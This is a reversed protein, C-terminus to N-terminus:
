RSCTAEMRTAQQALKRLKPATARPHDASTDNLAQEVLTIGIERQRAQIARLRRRGDNRREADLMEVIPRDAAAVAETERQRQERQRQRLLQEAQAVSLHPRPITTCGFAEARARLAPSTRAYGVALHLTREFPAGHSVRGGHHVHLLEHVITGLLDDAHSAFGSRNRARCPRQRVGMLGITMERGLLQVTEPFVGADAIKTRRFASTDVLVRPTRGM